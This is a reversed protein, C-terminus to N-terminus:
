MARASAGPHARRRAPLVPAPVLAPRLPAPSLMELLKAIASILLPVSSLLALVTGVRRRM